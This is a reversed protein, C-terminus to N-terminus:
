VSHYIKDQNEADELLLLGEAMGIELLREDM